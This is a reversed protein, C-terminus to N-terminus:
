KEDKDWTKKLFGARGSGVKYANYHLANKKYYDQHYEEAPFFEAAERIDTVIPDSFKGSEELAKRSAVAAIRQEEDHCFIATKYQPGRDAFQGYSDTPDINRWFVELLEDFSVLSPDYTIQAVELHGTNGSSVERYSPNDVAGGMYGAVVDTVGETQHFPPEMCWFCGGAFTAISMESDENAM